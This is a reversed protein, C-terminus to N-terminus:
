TGENALKVDVIKGDFFTVAVNAQLVKGDRYTGLTLTRTEPEPKVRYLHGVAGPLWLPHARDVWVSTNWPRYPTQIVKGAAFADREAQWELKVRYEEPPFVFEYVDEGGPHPAPLDGWVGPKDAGALQVTKGERWAQRLHAYPDSKVRYEHSPIWKPWPAPRWESGPSRVVIEAGDAWAKIMNAHKHPTKSM